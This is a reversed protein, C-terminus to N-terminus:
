RNANGLVLFFFVQGISTPFERLISPAEYRGLAVAFFPGWMRARHRGAPVRACSIAMWLM